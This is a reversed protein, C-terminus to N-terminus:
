LKKNFLYNVYLPNVHYFEGSDKIISGDSEMMVMAADYWDINIIKKTGNKYKISILIEPSEQLQKCDSPYFNIKRIEKEIKEIEIETDFKKYKNNTTSYQISEIQQYDNKEHYSVLYLITWLIVLLLIIIGIVYAIHKKM